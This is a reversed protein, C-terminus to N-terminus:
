RMGLSSNLLLTSYLFLIDQNDFTIYNGISAAPMYRIDVLTIKSYQQALLPTISSAFSDRFIILEKDTNADPNELTLLPTSGSLFMEYPDKGTLADLDYVYATEPSGTEYSTVTCNNLNENTLYILTDPQPYLASQGYYVGYFPTQAYNIEYNRLLVSDSMDPNMAKLLRQATDCLTEQKWHTDTYYYSDINLTDRIDIYSFSPNSETLTSVIQDFDLYIYSSNETLYYNKDPIVSLYINTNTNILYTDYIFRFRSAAHEAMTQNLYPDLKALHGNLYYLDNYDSQLFLYLAAHAKLSRLSDRCPFQDVSFTEFNDQFRGSMLTTVTPAEWQALARRESDSYQEKPSFICCLSMFIFYIIFLGILFYNKFHEKM